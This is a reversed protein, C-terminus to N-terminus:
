IGIEIFFQSLVENTINNNSALFPMIKATCKRGPFNNNIDLRKFIELDQDSNCIAVVIKICPFYEALAMQLIDKSSVNTIFISPNNYKKYSVNTTILYGNYKYYSLTLLQGLQSDTTTINITLPNFKNIESM